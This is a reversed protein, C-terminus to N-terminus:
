GFHMRCRGWMRGEPGNVFAGASYMTPYNTMSEVALVSSRVDSAVAGYVRVDVQLVDSADLAIDSLEVLGTAGMAVSTNAAVAGLLLPTTKQITPTPAWQTTTDHIRATLFLEFNPKSLTMVVTFEATMSISVNSLVLQASENFGNVADYSISDVTLIPTEDSPLRPLQAIFTGYNSFNDSSTTSQAASPVAVLIAILMWALIIPISHAHGPMANTNTASLLRECPHPAASM